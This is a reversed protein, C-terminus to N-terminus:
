TTQEEIRQSTMQGCHMKPEECPSLAEEEEKLCWLTRGTLLSPGDVLSEDEESGRRSAPPPTPGEEAKDDHDGEEPM